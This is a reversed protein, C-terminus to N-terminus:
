KSLDKEHAGVVEIEFFQQVDVRIAADQPEGVFAHQQEVGHRQPQEAPFQDLRETQRARARDERPEAVRM